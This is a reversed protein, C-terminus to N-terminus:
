KKLIKIMNNDLRKWKGTVKLYDFWIVITLSFIVGLFSGFWIDVFFHQVLYVRSLGIVLAIIFYFIGIPKYPTIISLLLCFSFASASHGSPFSNFAYITVGDVYHLPFFDGLYTRPRPSNVIYKIIQAALGSSSYSLLGILAFRLRFLALFIILIFYFIGDGFNTAWSFFIDWFPTNKGNLWVLIEERPLLIVALGGIFFFVLFSVFFYKNDLIIYKLSEYIKM